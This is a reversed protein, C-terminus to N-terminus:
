TDRSASRPREGCMVVTYLEGSSSSFSVEWEAEEFTGGDPISMSSLTIKPLEPYEAELRHYIATLLEAWRDQITAFFTHQADLPTDSSGDIFLGTEGSTPAFQVKSEWYRLKDGMYVM